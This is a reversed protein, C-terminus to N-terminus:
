CIQVEWLKRHVMVEQFERYEPEWFRERQINGNRRPLCYLRLVIRVIIRRMGNMRISTMASELQVFLVAVVAGLIGVVAGLVGTGVAAAVSAGCGAGSAKVRQTAGGKEGYASFGDPAYKESRNLAKSCSCGPNFM